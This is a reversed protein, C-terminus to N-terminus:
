KRYIYFRSQRILPGKLLDDQEIESMAQDLTKEGDAVKMLLMLKILKELEKVVKKISPVLNVIPKEISNALAKKGLKDQILEKIPKNDYHGWMYRVQSDLLGIRHAVQLASEQAPKIVSLAQVSQEVGDDGVIQAAKLLDVEDAVTLGNIEWGAFSAYFDDFQKAIDQGLAPYTYYPHEPLESMLQWYPQSQVLADLKAQFQRELASVADKTILFQKSLRSM